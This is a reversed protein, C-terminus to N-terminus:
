RYVVDDINSPDYDDAGVMKGLPDTSLEPLPELADRVFKRILAAKSVQESAALRELAEDLDEDIMIQLRKVYINYM